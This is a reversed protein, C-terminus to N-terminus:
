GAACAAWTGVDHRDFGRCRAAASRAIKTYPPAGTGTFHFYHRADEGYLWWEGSGPNMLTPEFAFVSSEAPVVYGRGTLVSWGNLLARSAPAAFAIVAVLAAAVAVAAVAAKSRM